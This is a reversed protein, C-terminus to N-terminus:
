LIIKMIPRTVKNKNDLRRIRLRRKDQTSQFLRRIYYVFNRNPRRVQKVIKIIKNLRQLSRHRLSRCSLVVM